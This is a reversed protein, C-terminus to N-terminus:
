WHEERGFADLFAEVSTAEVYEELRAAREGAGVDIARQQYWLLPRELDPIVTVSRPSCVEPPSIGSEPRKWVRTRESAIYAM